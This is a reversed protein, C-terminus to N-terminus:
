STRLFLVLSFVGCHHHYTLPVCFSLSSGAAWSSIIQALFYFPILNYSLTYLLYEHTMNIYIIPFILPSFLHDIWLIVFFERLYKNLSFSSFERGKLMCLLEKWLNYCEFLFSFFLLKATSFDSLYETFVLTLTLLSWDPQCCTNKVCCSSFLM